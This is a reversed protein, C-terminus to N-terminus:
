TRKLAVLLLVRYRRRENAPLQVDFTFHKTGFASVALPEKADPVKVVVSSRRSHTRLTPVQHRWLRGSDPFGHLLAVPPGEGTVDYEIGVGDVDVQGV